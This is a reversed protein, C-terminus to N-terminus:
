AAAQHRRTAATNMARVVNRPLDIPLFYNAPYLYKEGSEDTIRLDCDQFVEADPLVRFIKHLELSALYESHGVCIAFQPTKSRYAQKSNQLKISRPM